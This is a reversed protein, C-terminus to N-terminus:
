NFVSVLSDFYTDKYNKIIGNQENMRLINFNVQLKYNEIRKLFDDKAEDETM